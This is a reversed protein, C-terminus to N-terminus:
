SEFTLEVVDSQCRAQCALIYGSKVESDDLAYCVDMSVEGSHVKAVCTSCAGSTCSYPADIKEDILADLITKDSPVTVEYQKGALTVKVTAGVGAATGVPKTSVFRETHLFENDIGKGELHDIITDIMAGPGCVLYHAEVSKKPYDGLFQDVKSKDIRGVWGSWNMKGKSFLGKLGGSKERNPKSLTQQYIFQGTYKSALQELENKFIVCDENTNGYLLHCTSKPEEELITKIMSIIPTIGSGSAFFYFDRQKHEVLDLTFKGDPTMVDVHSGAKLTDNIHNSILGKKVRKVNVGYDGETPSTCLSYSRREEKGNVDFRLTLYQGARYKYDDKLNDPIDFYISKSQDTEEVVKKVTLKHFEHSM